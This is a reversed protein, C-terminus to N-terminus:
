PMVFGGDVYLTQGTVARVLDSLFFVAANAVDGDTAFRGLALEARFPEAGGRQGPHRLRGVGRGPLPLCRPTRGEVNRLRAPAHQSAAPGSLDLRDRGGFRGGGRRAARRGSQDDAVDGQLNVRMARDWDGPASNLLGGVATDWAAVNVVGDLRGFAARVEEVARRCDAESTIDGPIALTRAGEPDIDDRLLRVQESAVDGLAVRAGERLAASAVERGLGPGAGSVLVVRGGLLVM